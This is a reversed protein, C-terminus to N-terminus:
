KNKIIAKNNKIISGKKFDIRGDALAFRRKNSIYTKKMCKVTAYEPSLLVANKKKYKIGIIDPAILKPM